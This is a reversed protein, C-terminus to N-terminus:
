FTRKLSNTLEDSSHKNERISYLIWTKFTEIKGLHWQKEFPIEYISFDTEGWKLSSLVEKLLKFGDIFIRLSIFTGIMADVFNIGFQFYPEM